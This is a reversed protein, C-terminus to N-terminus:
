IGKHALDEPWTLGPRKNTSLLSSAICDIIKKKKKMFSFNSVLATGHTEVRQVEEKTASLVSSAVAKNLLVKQWSDVYM